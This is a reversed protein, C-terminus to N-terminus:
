ARGLSDFYAQATQSWCAHRDAFLARAEGRPWDSPLLEAPLDPDVFPFKRWAHVIATHASFIEAPKSPRLSAFDTLFSDYHAVVADLDWARRVIADSDGLAAIEATFSLVEAGDLGDNVSAILERDRGPHPSIWLGGGLSGFGAWALQVRLRDRIQRRQEPVRVVVLTWTSPWQWPEGFGYIRPYGARLMELTSESVSMTSRRGIRHSHLWGRTVGRAVSQRAAHTGFGITELATVCAGRDVDHGRPAVYEGLVTVLMSRAAPAGVSKLSLLAEM